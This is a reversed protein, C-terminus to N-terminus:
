GHRQIGREPVDIFRQLDAVWSTTNPDPFIREWGRLIAYGINSERRVAARTTHCWELSKRTWCTWSRRDTQRIGGRGKSRAKPWKATMDRIAKVSQTFSMKDNVLDFCIHKPRKQRGCLRCGQAATATKFALDWSQIIMNCHPATTYYHQLWAKKFVNGDAPAPRQQMQGSYQLSGMSKKLGALSEKDYRQPNLIDGEERILQKGSKPFTIITKKQRLQYVCINMAWTKQWCM